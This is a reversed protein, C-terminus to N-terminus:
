LTAKIKAELSRILDEMERRKQPDKEQQAVMRLQNIMGPNKMIRDITEQDFLSPKNEDESPDYVAGPLAGVMRSGQHKSDAADIAARNINSQTATKRMISYIIKLAQVKATNMRLGEYETWGPLATYDLMKQAVDYAIDDTTRGNLFKDRDQNAKENEPRSGGCPSGPDDTNITFGGSVLGRKTMESAIVKNVAICAVKSIQTHYLETPKGSDDFYQKLVEPDRGKSSKHYDIALYPNPSEEDTGIVQQMGKIKSGQTKGAATYREGKVWRDLIRQFKKALNKENAGPEEAYAIGKEVDSKIKKVLELEIEETPPMDENTKSLYRFLDEPGLIKTPDSNSGGAIGKWKHFIKQERPNLAQGARVKDRIKRFYDIAAYRTFNKPLIEVGQDKLHALVEEPEAETGFERWAQVIPEQSKLVDRFHVATSPKYETTKGKKLDNLVGRIMQQMKKEDQVELGRLKLIQLLENPEVLQMANDVSIGREAAIKKALDMAAQRPLAYAKYSRSLEDGVYEKEWPSFERTRDKARGQGFAENLYEYVLLAEAINLSEILSSCGRSAELLEFWHIIDQEIDDVTERLLTFHKFNSM